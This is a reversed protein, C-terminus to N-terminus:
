NGTPLTLMWGSSGVFIVAGVLIMTLRVPMARISGAIGLVFLSAALLVAILNYTDGHGAAEKADDYSADTDETLAEADTYEAIVYNPNEEVFPSYYAELNEPQEWWEIAAILEDRMLSEKIFEAYETDEENLAREYELFLMQDGVYTQDGSNYFANADSLNLNADTFGEVVKGDFASAQFAAWATAMAALGLLLVTLMELRRDNRDERDVAVVPTVEAGVSGASGVSGAASDLM